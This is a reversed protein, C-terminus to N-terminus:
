RLVMWDVFFYHVGKIIHWILYGNMKVTILKVGHFQGQCAHPPHKKCTVTFKNKILNSTM